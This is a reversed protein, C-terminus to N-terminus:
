WVGLRRMEEEPSAEQRARDQRVAERAREDLSPLPAASAEPQPAQKQSRRKSKRAKTGRADDGEDQGKETAAQPNAHPSANGAYDRLDFISQAHMKWLQQLVWSLSRDLRKAEAEIQDLMERPFYLSQKCDRVKM